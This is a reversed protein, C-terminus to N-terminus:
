ILSNWHQPPAGGHQGQEWLALAQLAFATSVPNVHPLWEGGQRGFYFGGEIRSDDSSGQFEELKRAEFRAQELDLPVAGAASAYIRMRLLQAYVDSREIQPALERLYEATRHIGDCIVAAFRADGAGPLLGELFYLFAHLRDMVKAPDPHGPLFAGSTRVAQAAARQYMEQFQSDGTAEALEQWAMVAKLQYCGPSRSWREKDRNAAQKGPLLLIPHFESDNSRFDVAMSGGLARAVDLFEPDGASRWASLLGRVIIGCDFFYTLLNGNGDLEFPVTQWEPKWSARTLFRAASLARDFYYSEGTLEYCYFLAKVAYGTIETSVPQNRQLEARYYRAVGGSAEQIGSEAFWRSARSL